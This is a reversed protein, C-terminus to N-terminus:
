GSRGVGRAAAVHDPLGVPRLVRRRRPIRRRCIPAGGHYLMVGLVAIARLGDLAPVFGFRVAARAAPAAVARPRRAGTPLLSM